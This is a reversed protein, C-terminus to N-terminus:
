FKALLVEALLRQWYKVLFFYAKFLKESVCRHIENLFLQPYIYTAGHLVYM